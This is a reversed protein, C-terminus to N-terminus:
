PRPVGKMTPMRRTPVPMKTEKFGVTKFYTSDPRLARLNGELQDYREDCMPSKGHKYYLTKCQPLIHELWDSMHNNTFSAGLSPPFKCNDTFVITDQYRDMWKDVWYMYNYPKDVPQLTEFPKM